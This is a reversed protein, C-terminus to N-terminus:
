FVSGFTHVATTVNASGTTVSLQGGQLPPPVLGPLLGCPTGPQETTHTGALPDLKWFPTVVTVQVAVSAEFLVAFQENVTVILSVCGGAIVQGALMACPVSGFTQVATTVNVGVAVSLQGSPGVGTTQLGADPVVKLLPTVVTLQVAVSVLLLVAFQENVTVTLSVCAGDIVHGAFM